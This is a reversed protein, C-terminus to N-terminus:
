TILRNPHDVDIGVRFSQGFSALSWLLLSLGALCFAVGTWSIAESHFFEQTSVTPWHFAAAFVLYFYFFAFPPIVFDTKDLKGFKMAEVGQRKLMATRTLENAVPRCTRGAGAGAAGQAEREDGGSSGSRAQIRADIEQAARIGYSVEELATNSWNLHGDFTPVKLDVM